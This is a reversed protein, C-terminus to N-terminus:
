NNNGYRYVMENMKFIVVGIILGSAFCLLMIKDNVKFHNETLYKYLALFHTTSATNGTEKLNIVLQGPKEGFYQSYHNAGSLISSRSTQHPILYDIKDFTLGNEELASKVISTSEDISVQHIRQARTKMRGGPSKRNQRGICLNSYHSLTSFGSMILGEEDNVSRELIVAAGGDGVTLSSFELSLPTRINKVAHDSINSIYEGSVILCTKILGLKIYNKAIYVGTLMGACANSIDFTIARKAGIADKILVSFTPEYQHSLGNRYKTISCNIIMDIEEPMYRSYSLCDRTAGLALSFSDDNASCVRRESIGTLLGFKNLGPIKIKGILEQTTLVKEPMKMGISEFQCKWDIKM